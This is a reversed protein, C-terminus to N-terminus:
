ARLARDLLRELPRISLRLEGRHVQLSVARRRQHRQGGESGRLRSGPSQEHFWRCHSHSRWRRQAHDPYRSARRSGADQWRLTRTCGQLGPQVRPLARQRILLPGADGAPPTATAPKGKGDRTMRARYLDRTARGALEEASRDGTRRCRACGLQFRQPGASGPRHCGSSGPRIQRFRARQERPLPVLFHCPVRGLLLVRGMRRPLQRREVRRDQPLVRRGHPSPPTPQHHDRERGVALQRGPVAPEQALAGVAAAISAAFLMLRQLAPKM